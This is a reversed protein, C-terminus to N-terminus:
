YQSMVRQVANVDDVEGQKGTSFPTRCLPCGRTRGMEAWQLICEACFTHTCSLVAVQTDQEFETLCCACAEAETSASRPGPPYLGSGVGCIVNTSSKEAEMPAEAESDVADLSPKDSEGKELDILDMSQRARRTQYDGYTCTVILPAPKPKPPNIQDMPGRRCWIMTMAGLAVSLAMVVTGFFQPRLHLLLAASGIGLAIGVYVLLLSRLLPAADSPRCM